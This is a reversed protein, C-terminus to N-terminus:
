RDNALSIGVLKPGGPQAYPMSPQGKADHVTPRGTDLCWLTEPRGSSTAPTIYLAQVNLLVSSNASGFAINAITTNLTDPAANLEASPYPKETTKNVAEGVTYAYDGRTYSAFFRGKSSIALGIPWQDYYYHYEELVPGQTGNDVRLITQTHNIFSANQPIFNGSQAAVGAALLLSSVNVAGPGPSLIPSNVLISSTGKQIDVLYINGEAFDTAALLGREANIVALGDFLIGTGGNAVKEAKVKSSDYTPAQYGRLDIKWVDTPGSIVGTAVDVRVVKFGVPSWVKGVEPAMDGFQAIFAEGEFGFAKSRSFDFGNSSSHM